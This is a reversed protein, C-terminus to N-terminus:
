AITDLAQSPGPRAETERESGKVLELRAQTATAAAQAAVARDASSPNAPALAARQVTAMKRLTAEPDGKVESVDIPVEGSVAYRKGDPGVETELHIAGAHRGGAAKHAQEHAQVERDRTALRRVEEATERAEQPSADRAAPKGPTQTEARPAPGTGESGDSGESQTALGRAEPSLRVEAAAGFTSPESNQANPAQGVRPTLSQVTSRPQVADLRVGSATSYSAIGQMTSDFRACTRAGVGSFPV